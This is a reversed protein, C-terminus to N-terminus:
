GNPFSATPVTYTTTSRGVGKTIRVEDMYGNLYHLLTGDYVAGGLKLSTSSDRIAKTQATGGANLLTTNVFLYMTNAVKFVAISYWTNLSFTFSGTVLDFSANDEYAEFKLSTISSSTGEAYLWFGRDSAADKCVLGIRRLGGNLAPYAGFRVRLEISFDGSGLEFDASDAVSLYDGSGDFRASCTGFVSQLWSTHTNGFATITHGKVDVFPGAVGDEGNLHSLFVVNSFYPDTTVYDPYPLTPPTFNATYRPNAHTYRVTGMNGVFYNGDSDGGIRLPFYPDYITSGITFSAGEVGNLYGKLSSGSRCVAVHYRTDAAITGVTATGTWSAGTETYLLELNTGNQRLWICGFDGVTLRKSIITRIGTVSTPRIEVEVCFDDSEMLTSFDEQVSLYDGTGDFLITPQGDFTVGTDAQVNGFKSVVQPALEGSNYFFTSGDTAAPRIFVSM